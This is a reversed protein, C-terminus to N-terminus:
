YAITSEHTVQLDIYRFPSHKPETNNPSCGSHLLATLVMFSIVILWLIVDFIMVEDAKKM